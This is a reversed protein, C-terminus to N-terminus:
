ESPRFPPHLMRIDIHFLLDFYTGQDEITIPIRRRSTRKAFQHGNKM